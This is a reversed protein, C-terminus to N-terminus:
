SGSLLSTVREWVSGEEGGNEEVPDTIDYTRELGCRVQIDFNLTGLLKSFDGVSGARGPAARLVAGRLDLFDAGTSRSRALASAVADRCLSALSEEAEARSASDTLRADGDANLVNAEASVEVRMGTLSDGCFLPSIETEAGNVSVTVSGGGCPVDVDWGELLNRLILVGLTEEQTLFDHLRGDVILAFGAPAIVSEGRGDFLKADQAREVAMVLCCGSDALSIAAQRCTFVRGQGTRPLSDAAGRLVSAPTTDEGAIGEMLERCTGGRVLFMNTDLRIEGYRLVYDLSEGIGDRAADESILLNETHSLDTSGGTPTTRLLGLGVAVGPAQREYMRIKTDEGSASSCILVDVGEGSSDVCLTRVLELDAVERYNSFISGGGRGAIALAALAALVAATIKLRKMDEDRM